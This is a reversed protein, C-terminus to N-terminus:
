VLRCPSSLCVLLRSLSNEMWGRRTRSLCRLCGLANSILWIAIVAGSGASGAQMHLLMCSRHATDRIQRCRADQSELRGIRSLMVSEQGFCACGDRKGTDRDRADPDGVACVVIVRATVQRSAGYAEVPSRLYYLSGFFIHLCKGIIASALSPYDPCSFFRGVTWCHSLTNAIYPLLECTLSLSVEM